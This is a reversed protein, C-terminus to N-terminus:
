PVRPQVAGDVSISARRHGDRHLELWDISQVEFRLVALHHDEDQVSPFAGAPESDARLSGPPQVSLDDAASRSTRVQAWAAEVLEGQTFVSARVAVRLQWALRASWFVLQAAPQSRLEDCKPTRADTYVTLRRCPADAQRLVV